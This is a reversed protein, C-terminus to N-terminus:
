RVSIGNLSKLGHQDFECILNDELNWDYGDRASGARAYVYLDILARGQADPQIAKRLDDWKGHADLDTAEWNPDTDLDTVLAINISCPMGDLKTNYRIGPQASANSGGLKLVWTRILALDQKSIKM